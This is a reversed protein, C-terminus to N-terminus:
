EGDVVEGEAPEADKQEKYEKYMNAIQASVASRALEVTALEKRAEVTKISVHEFLAVQNQIEEPLKAIVIDEGDITITEM